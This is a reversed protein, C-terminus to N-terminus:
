EECSTVGVSSPLMQSYEKGSMRYFMEILENKHVKEFPHNWSRNKM